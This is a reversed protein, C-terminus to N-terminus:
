ISSLHIYFRQKVYGLFITHVIMPQYWGHAAVALVASNSIIYITVYKLNQSMQWCMFNTSDKVETMEKNFTFILSM